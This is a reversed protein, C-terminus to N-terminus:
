LVSNAVSHFHFKQLKQNQFVRGDGVLWISNKLNRFSSLSAVSGSKNERKARIWDDRRWVQEECAEKASLKQRTLSDGLGKWDM